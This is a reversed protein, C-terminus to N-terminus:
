TLQVEKKEVLRRVREYDAPTDIWWLGESMPYSYLRRGASLLKPVVDRGFDYPVDAPIWDLVEPEWIMLGANVWQSFVEEPQPKELFRTIRGEEDFSAIGSAIVDERKFLAVTGFGGKGRHHTIMRSVNCTTVNDGYLVLFPEDFFHGVKKVAGATGLLDLEYSYTISVNWREGTGFYDTVAQPCHHLNVIIERIGHRALLCLNHELVPRGAVSLMPKPMRDTLPRLRTGEGAALLMARMPLGTEGRM